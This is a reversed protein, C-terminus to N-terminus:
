VVEVKDFPFVILQTIVDFAVQAVVVVAVELVSVMDTAEATTGDTLIDDEAPVVNQEPVFTVNVAFAVFPPDVGDYWHFFFPITTPAAEVYLEDENTVPSIIVHTKVDEEVQADGVVAVELEKVIVTFLVTVGDTLILEEAPLM